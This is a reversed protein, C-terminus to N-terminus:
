SFSVKLLLCFFNKIDLDDGYVIDLAHLINDNIALKVIKIM